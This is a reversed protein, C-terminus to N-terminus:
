VLSPMAEDAIVDGRGTLHGVYVVPVTPGDQNGAYFSQLVKPSNDGISAGFSGVEVECAALIATTMLAAVSMLVPPKLGMSTAQM